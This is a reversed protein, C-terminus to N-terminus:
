LFAVRFVAGRTPISCAAGCKTDSVLIARDVTRSRNMKQTETPLTGTCGWLLCVIMFPVYTPRAPAGTHITRTQKINIDKSRLLFNNFETFSTKHKWLTSSLFVNNSKAASFILFIIEKKQIDVISVLLPYLYFSQTSLLIILDLFDFRQRM